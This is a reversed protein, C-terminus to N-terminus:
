VDALLLMKYFTGNVKVRLYGASTGAAPYITADGRFGVPREVSGIAVSPGDDGSTAGTSVNAVAYAGIALVGDTAVNDASTGYGLFTNEDGSTIDAGGTGVSGGCSQGLGTNGNAAVLSNFTGAGVGTNDDGITPTMVGGGVATNSSETTIAQLTRRGIATNTTGETNGSLAGDGVATCASGITNALLANVGCATNSIISATGSGVTLGSITLDADFVLPTFTVNSGSRLGVTLDGTTIAGGATFDSWKIDAM